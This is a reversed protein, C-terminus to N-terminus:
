RLHSGSAIALVLRRHRLSGGAQHESSRRRLVSAADSPGCRASLGDGQPGRDCAFRAPRLDALDNAAQILSAPFASLGGDSALLSGWSALHSHTQPSSAGRPSACRWQRAVTRLGAGDCILSCSVDARVVLQSASRSVEHPLKLTRPKKWSRCCQPTPECSSVSSTTCCLRLRRRPTRPERTRSSSCFSSPTTRALCVERSSVKLLSDIQFGDADGRFTSANLTNGIALVTQLPGDAQTDLSSLVFKGGPAEQVQSLEEARRCRLPPDFAGAQAGGHGDRSAQSPDYLRTTRQPAPNDDGPFTLRTLTPVLFSLSFRVENFYQDSPSLTAIEGPYARIAEMQMYVCTLTRYSGPLPLFPSEEDTTPVYHKIAKLNDISLKADDIHLVADRIQVHPM